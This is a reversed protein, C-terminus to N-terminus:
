GPIDWVSIIENEPDLKYLEPNRTTETIGTLCPM